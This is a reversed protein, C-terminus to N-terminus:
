LWQPSRLELGGDQTYLLYLPHLTIDPAVKCNQSRIKKGHHYQKLQPHVVILLM